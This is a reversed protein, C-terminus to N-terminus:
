GGGREKAYREQADTLTDVWAQAEPTDYLGAARLLAERGMTAANCAEVCYDAVAREIRDAHTAGALREKYIARDTEQALCAAKFSLLAAQEIMGMIEEPPPPIIVLAIKCGCNRCMWIADGDALGYEDEMYTGCYPCNSTRDVMGISGEVFFSKGDDNTIRAM